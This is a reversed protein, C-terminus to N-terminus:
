PSASTSPAPAAGSGGRGHSVLLFGLALIAVLAAILWWMVNDSTPAEEPTEKANARESGGRAKAEGVPPPTRSPSPRLSAPPGDPEARAAEHPADTSPARVTPATPEVAEVRRASPSERVTAPPPDSKARRVEARDAPESASAVGGAAASIAARVSVDGVGHLTSALGVPKPAITVPTPTSSLTKAFMRQEAPSVRPPPAAPKAAEPSAGFPRTEVIPADDDPDPLPAAPSPTPTPTPGLGLSPLTVKPVDVRRTAEHETVVPTAEPPPASPEVRPQPVAKATPRGDPEGPESRVAGAAAIAIAFPPPPTPPVVISASEDLAVLATAIADAGERTRASLVLGRTALDLLLDELTSPAVEGSLVLERPSAGKAVREALLRLSPPLPALHAGLRADDLTVVALELLREGAVADTAGRLARVVPALQSGLEGRPLPARQGKRDLPRVLFRGGVIGLLPALAREGHAFAGEGDTQSLARLGGGDLDLEFASTADRVVVTADERVRDVITLLSRVSLDDLRGRVEGGAAIRAEVRVRPALIERVRALITHAGEDKRVMASTELRLDRLRKLLDEKWSLLMVPRDRLVVDRELARVLGVGDLRPMLVDSVILDPEHRRALALAQWGDHAELVTAGAGRLVGGLFWVVQPDDDALVITRGELDVEIASARRGGRREVHGAPTAPEPASPADLGPVVAIPTRTVPDQFRLAGHSRAEVAERVRALAGWMPGFVEAGAGFDLRQARADPTLADVLRRRVEEALVDALEAVSLEGLPPVAHTAAPHEGLLERCLRLITLASTPKDVVKTVGLAVLRQRHADRAFTGLAVIPVPGTLPDDILAELADTAGPPDVDILVLDPAVARALPVLDALADTREVECPLATPDDEVARALPEPGVVLVVFPTVRALHPLSDVPPPPLSSPLRPSSPALSAPAAPRSAPAPRSSPPRSSTPPPAPTPEKTWALEPIRDLLEALDRLLADSVRGQTAQEDIQQTADVIARALVEFHLLRSAVGLAHLKRRLENRGRERDPNGSLATLSARLETVKRGLGAAFDAAAGGLRAPDPPAVSRPEVPM